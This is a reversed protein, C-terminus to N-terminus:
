SMTKEIVLALLAGFLAMFFADFNTILYQLFGQLVDIGELKAASPKGSVILNASDQSYEYSTNLNNGEIKILQNGCFFSSQSAGSTCYISADDNSFYGSIKNIKGNFYLDDEPNMLSFNVDSINELSFEGVDHLYVDAGIDSLIEDNLKIVTNENAVLADGFGVYVKGFSSFGQMNVDLIRSTINESENRTDFDTEVIRDAYKIELKDLFTADDGSTSSIFQIIPNSIAGAFTVGDEFSSNGNFEIVFEYPEAHYTRGDIEFTIANENTMIGNYAYLAYTQFDVGGSFNELVINQPKGQVIVSTNNKKILYLAAIDAFAIVFLGLLVYYINKELKKEKM